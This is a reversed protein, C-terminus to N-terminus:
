GQLRANKDGEIVDAIRSMQHALEEFQAALHALEDFQAALGDIAQAIRENSTAITMGHLELGGMTTGDSTTARNNALIHAADIIAEALSTVQETKM